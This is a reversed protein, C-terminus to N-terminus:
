GRGKVEGDAQRKGEGRVRWEAASRGRTWESLLSSGDVRCDTVRM